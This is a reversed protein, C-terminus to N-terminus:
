RIRGPTVIVAGCESSCPCLYYYLAGVCRDDADADKDKTQADQPDEADAEEDEDDKDLALSEQLLKRRKNSEEDTPAPAATGELALPPLGEAKRKKNKAELEAVKQDTADGIAKMAKDYKTTKADVDITLAPNAM